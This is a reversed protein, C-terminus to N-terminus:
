AVEQLVPHAELVATEVQAQLLMEVLPEQEAVVAAQAQLVAQTLAAAGM